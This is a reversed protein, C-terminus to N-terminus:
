SEVWVTDVPCLSLEQALVCAKRFCPHIPGCGVGKRWQPGRLCSGRPLLLTILPFTWRQPGWFWAGSHQTPFHRPAKRFAGVQRFSPPTARGPLSHFPFAPPSPLAPGRWGRLLDQRSPKLCASNRHARAPSSQLWPQQSDFPRLLSRTHSDTHRPILSLPSAPATVTATGQHDGTPSTLWVVGAPCTHRPRLSKQAPFPQGRSRSGKLRLSWSGPTTPSAGVVWKRLVLQWAMWRSWVQAEAILQVVPCSCSSGWEM